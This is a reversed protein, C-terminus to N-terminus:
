FDIAKHRLLVSEILGVGVLTSILSSGGQSILPLPIGTVPLLRVNVAVNIFVQVLVMVVIGTVLLRGFLDYALSAARIGRFLLLTYLGLLVVAGLLGLEEGLVSFIYDTSATQLFDLQTQTGQFLGRGLVGGSGVGIEAQRINFGGGLPDLNPNFFLTLRERQYDGLAAVAILPIALVMFALLSLVHGARAGGMTVLALWIAGFVIATGMDPEVMVLVAPLGAILISLLFNSLKHMEGQRDTLFRALAIITFLKALESPQIQVGGITLWRRAGYSADGVLLVAVLLVLGLGYLSPAVAGLLRYDMYAAGALLLLGVCAYIAQKAVPHDLGRIGEPYSSLSASYILLGGYAALALAATLLWPDFHRPLHPARM